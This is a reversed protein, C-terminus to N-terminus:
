LWHFSLLIEISERCFRLLNEASDWYIRLLIETSEWCFRLYKKTSGWHIGLSNKVSEWNTENFEWQLRLSEIIFEWVTKFFFHIKMRTKKQFPIEFSKRLRRVTRVCASAAKTSMFTYKPIFLARLCCCCSWSAFRLFFNWPKFKRMVHLTLLKKKPPRKWLFAWM